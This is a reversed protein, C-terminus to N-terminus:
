LTHIPTTEAAPIGVMRYDINRLRATEAFEHLQELVDPDFRTTNRGDIEIRAGPPVAELTREINAKSLFTAQDPLVFRTLVAGHGSVQRLAPQRLHERLIFFFGVALGIGIGILLDTVVISVLTVAFPTFQSPGQAWAMRFLAPSALKYGTFLLIAALSALPILNLVAPLALVAALLLGGHIMTSRRTQAGADINAASRVIVGAIPLGGLLGSVVNGVGQAQLERDTDSERKFPDMKDTADLSLLTELSAVVAITVAIRWTTTSALATWDPWALFDLWDSPRSAVPLQVLHSPALVLAGNLAPFLANAFLGALVALLAAPVVRLRAPRWHDWALLVGLSLLTVTLAGPHVADLMNGLASFTTENNAQWFSEDGEFDVDYGIAHPLQKLILTVGIGALMGRIVSSPFFYGILGARLRGLVLQLLGALVVSVLFARFSGASAIGTIVVATLGAAPGSVMVQSASLGGVLVGGVVGAILGATLPAGAALSIGLCLPLAILVLVIAAPV